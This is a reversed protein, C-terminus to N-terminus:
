ASVVLLDWKQLLDESHVDAGAKLLVRANKVLGHKVAIFLPQQNGWPKNVSAGCCACSLLLTLLEGGDRKEAAIHIAQRRGELWGINVNAKCQCLVNVAKNDEEEILTLLITKNNQFVKNINLHGVRILLRVIDLNGVKAAYYLANKYNNGQYIYANRYSGDSVHRLLYKVFEFNGHECAILLTNKEADHLKDTKTKVNVGLTLLHELLAVSGFMAAVHVLRYGKSKFEVIQKRYSRTRCLYILQDVNRSWIASKIRRDFSHSTDM